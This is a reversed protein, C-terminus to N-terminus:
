PYLIMLTSITSRSGSLETLFAMFSILPWYRKDVAYRNNSSSLLCSALIPIITTNTYWGRLSEAHGIGVLSIGLLDQQHLRGLCVRLALVEHAQADGSLSLSEHVSKLVGDALKWGIYASKHVTYQTRISRHIHIIHVASAEVSRPFTRSPHSPDAAVWVISRCPSLRPRSSYRCCLTRAARDRTQWAAAGPGRWSDACSNSVAEASHLRRRGDM